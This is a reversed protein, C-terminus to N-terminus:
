HAEDIVFQLKKNEHLRKYLIRLSKNLLLKEPTVFLLCTFRLAIEECVKAEYEVTGVQNQILSKLPSIIITLSDFLIASAAYCFSKGGGTKIIVLTDKNERIYYNIADIQGPRLDTFKFIKEAITQIQDDLSIIKDIDMSSISKNVENQLMIDQNLFRRELEKSFDFGILETHENAYKKARLKNRQYIKNVNSKNQESREYEIMGINLTDELEFCQGSYTERLESLLYTYGENYYIVSLTPNQIIITSDDKTWCIDSWCSSYDNQLHRILGDVQMERTEEESPAFQDKAERRL